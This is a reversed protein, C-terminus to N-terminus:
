YQPCVLCFHCRKNLAHSIWIVAIFASMKTIANGRASQTLEASLYNDVCTLVASPDLDCKQKQRGSSQIREGLELDREVQYWVSRFKMYVWRFTTGGELIKRTCSRGGEMYNILGKFFSHYKNINIIIEIDM